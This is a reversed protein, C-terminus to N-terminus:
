RPKQQPVKLLILFRSDVVFVFDFILRGVSRYHCMAAFFGVGAAARGAVIGPNGLM